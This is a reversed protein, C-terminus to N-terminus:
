DLRYLSIERRNQWDPEFRWYFHIEFRRAPLYPRSVEPWEVLCVGQNYFYDELGLDSLEEKYAIRYFDFHYIPLRGRYENVLTFTPSTIPEKVRLGRCIGRICTTKGSGLNGYFALLDGPRLNAAFSRGFEHTTEASESIFREVLTGPLPSSKIM